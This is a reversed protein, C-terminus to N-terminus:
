FINGANGSVANVWTGHRGEARYIWGWWDLNTAPSSLYQAAWNVRGPCNGLIDCMYDTTGVSGHTPWLPSALLTGTVSARYGGKMEGEVDNGIPTPPQGPSTQGAVADFEGKYRVIACFKTPDNADSRWMTIHRNYNDMAWYNGNEGSDADNKVKQVVNVVPEGTRNCKDPNVEKQWVLTLRGQNENNEGHNEDNDKAVAPTVILVFALLPVVVAMIKKM